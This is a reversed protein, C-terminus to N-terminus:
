RRRLAITGSWSGGTSCSEYSPHAVACNRPPTGVATQTVPIRIRRSRRLVRVPIEVTRSKFWRDPGYGAAFSFGPTWYNDYLGDISDGQGPCQSPLIVLVDSVPNLAAIKVARTRADYSLQIKAHLLQGPSTAARVQCSISRNDSPYLGDVHTHSTTAAAHTRGRAGNLDDIPKCSSRKATGLCPPIQLMSGFSLSWDQTSSDHADNTDHEGGPNPPESHYQTAYTGSGQYTVVFRALARYGAPVATYSRQAASAVGPYGAAFAAAAGLAAAFLTPRSKM